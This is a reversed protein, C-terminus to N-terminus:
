HSSRSRCCPFSESRSRFGMRGLRDQLFTSPRMLAYLMFLTRGIRESSSRTSTVASRMPMKMAVSNVEGSM